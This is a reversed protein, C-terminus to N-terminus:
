SFCISSIIVNTDQRSPPNHKKIDDEYYFVNLFCNDKPIDFFGRIVVQSVGVNNSVTNLLVSAHNAVHYEDSLNQLIYVKGQRDFFSPSYTINRIILDDLSRTKYSYDMMAEYGSKYFKNLYIQPNIAIATSASFFDTMKLSVFGGASSGFFVINKEDIGVEDCASLILKKLGDFLNVGPWGQFWGIKLDNDENITPDDIVLCHCKETYDVMWSHRQYQVTGKSRDYAGPFFVILKESALGSHYSFQIEYEGVRFVGSELSFGNFDSM